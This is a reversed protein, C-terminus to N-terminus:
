SMYNTSQHADGFVPNDTYKTLSCFFRSIYSLSSFRRPGCGCSGTVRPSGGGDNAPAFRSGQVGRLSIKEDCIAFCGPALFCCLGRRKCFYNVLSWQPHRTCCIGGSCHSLLHPGLVLKSTLRAWLQHDQFMVVTLWGKMSKVEFSYLSQM